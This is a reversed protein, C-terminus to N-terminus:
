QIKCNTAPPPCKPPKIPGLDTIKGFVYPAGSYQATITLTGSQGAPPDNVATYFNFSISVNGPYTSYSRVWNTVAVPQSFTAVGDNIVFSFQASGLVTGNSEDSITLTATGGTSAITLNNATLLADAQTADFNALDSAPPDAETTTGFIDGYGGGAAIIDTALPACSKGDACNYASFAITIVAVVTFVACGALVSIVAASLWLWKKHHLLAKANM